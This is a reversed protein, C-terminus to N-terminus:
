CRKKINGVESKKDIFRRFMIYWRCKIIDINKIFLTIDIFNKGSTKDLSTISIKNCM